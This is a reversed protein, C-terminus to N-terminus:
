SRKDIDGYGRSMRKVGELPTEPELHSNQPERVGNKGETYGISLVMSMPDLFPSGRVIEM